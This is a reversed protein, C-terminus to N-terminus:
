PAARKPKFYVHANTIHYFKLGNARAVHWYKLLFGVAHFNGQFLPKLQPLRASFVTGTEKMLLVDLHKTEERM